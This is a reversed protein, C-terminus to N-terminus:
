NGLLFCWVVDVQKMCVKSRFLLHPDDTLERPRKWVVKAVNIDNLFNRDTFVSSDDGKFEMDIFPVSTDISQQLSKKYSQDTLRRNKQGM